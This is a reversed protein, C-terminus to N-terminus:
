VDAKATVAAIRQQLGERGETVDMCVQLALLPLPPATVLLRSVKIADKETTIIGRCSAGRAVALLEDVDQERYRWHDPFATFDEVEAGLNELSRRFAEPNGIGCFACWRGERLLSLPQLEAHEGSPGVERLGVPRHVALAVPVGPAHRSLQERIRAIGEPPAQDSRTIVILGARALGSLPERLLGRPLLRGGGFPQLADVLVIDLDRALRRHQFGDDLVLVGEPDARVARRVASVRDPAVIIPVGRDLMGILMQNEDDLGSAPDRGYGRSLVAPRLGRSILQQVLWAVFPTKGTGGATINGVSIVPVPAKHVRKLGKDYFLNRVRVALGYAAAGAGLAARWAVLALGQEEPNMVRRHLANLRSEFRITERPVKLTAGPQDLRPSPATPGEARARFNRKRPAIEERCYEQRCPTALAPM